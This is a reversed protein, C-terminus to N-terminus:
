PGAAPPAGDYTPGRRGASGNKGRHNLLRAVFALVLSGLVIAMGWAVVRFVSDGADALIGPASPAAAPTLGSRGGAAAVKGM